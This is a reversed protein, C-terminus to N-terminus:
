LLATCLDKILSDVNELGVSLRVLNDTIQMKKLQDMTFSFTMMSLPHMITTETGGFSHAMKILRLKKLFAITKKRDDKLWFNIVGSFGPWSVKKVRSNNRLFAAIRKANQSHKEMRLNLTKVGREILFCDFPSPVAGITHQLFKLKKFLKKNNLMVAGATVDHHGAIYKTLSHIVMDAGQIIPNQFVPSSITNDVLVMIGKKQAIQCIVGIDILKLCPNILNELWILKTKKKIVAKLDEPDCLNVFSFRLKFKEFVKQFLRINGEYIERGSIIHDGAKFLALVSTSAASGSSFTLAFKAKELQALKQELCIRGPNDVRSYGEQGPEQHVFTTSLTIPKVLPKLKNEM